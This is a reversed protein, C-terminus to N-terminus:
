AKPTTPLNLITRRNLTIRARPTTPLNLITRLKTILSLTTGGKTTIRPTTPAKTITKLTIAAKLIGVRTELLAVLTALVVAGVRTVGVAPTVLGVVGGGMAEAAPTVARTELEAQTVVVARTAAETEM